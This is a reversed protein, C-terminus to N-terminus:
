VTASVNLQGSRTVTWNLSTMQVEPGRLQEKLTTIESGLHQLTLTISSLMSQNQSNVTM